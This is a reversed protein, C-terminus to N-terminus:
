PKIINVFVPKFHQLSSFKWWQDLCTCRWRIASQTIESTRAVCCVQMCDINFRSLNMDKRSYLDKSERNLHLFIIRAFVFQPFVDIFMQIVFILFIYIPTNQYHNIKSFFHPWKSMYECKLWTRDRKWIELLKRDKIEEYGGKQGGGGCLPAPSISISPTRRESIHQLRELIKIQQGISKLSVCM